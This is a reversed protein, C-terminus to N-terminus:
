RVETVKGDELDELILRKDREKPDGYGGGGPTNVVILDGRKLKVTDKGSLDRRKGDKIVYHEGKAGEEGGKLGWPAVRVRDAIISLTADDLLEYVRRIGLGGRYKGRGGSNERLSYELIRVPYEREIVEIPTNMTNTMNVHVGDIGDGNPRAGSGGGLTEYFAWGRGGLIVNNMSGHSAAPIDFNSSLAKFIADVIRQSTEVNGASVPAPKIPNVLSGEPALIDVVKLFGYNMPLHPDLVSKLAFSTSAVTVGYVANLPADVQEHTGSFDVKISDGKVSIRVSINLLEDGLEVYDEGFSEFDEISGVKSRVYRETYEIAWIWADKVEDFGYREVLELVRREGVNLSAIQAKLDGLTYKPVRVNEIILKLVNEDFKVPPIVLGEAFIDTAEISMSGPAMGGVDVHHAKNVVYGLLEGEYYIPKLMTIDNLHTGAIYPDNVIIVDGEEVDVMEVIRKAGVALSGLHVPIHEAQAVIEGNESVVACSFDLRDKINPSYATNRLVIGMEEAIYETSCRIVEFEIM